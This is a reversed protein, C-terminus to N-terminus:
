IQLVLVGIQLFLVRIQLFLVRIQLVLVGIQIVLVGDPTSFSWDLDFVNIESSHFFVLSHIWSRMILHRASWPLFSGHYTRKMKM